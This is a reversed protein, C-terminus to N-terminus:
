LMANVFGVIESLPSIFSKNVPKAIFSKDFFKFMGRHQPNNIENYFNVTAFCILPMTTPNYSINYKEKIANPSTAIEMLLKWKYTQGARERLSTKLSMIICADVDGNEKATYIVLDVDPKQTEGDVDITAISEFNKIQSKKSTIFINPKINGIMKNQLFIYAISNSFTNGAISKISQKVDAIEGKKKRMKLIKEVEDKADILIAYIHDFVKEWAKQKHAEKDVFAHIRKLTPKMYFSTEIDNLLAKEQKTCSYKKM